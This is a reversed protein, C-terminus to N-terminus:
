PNNEPIEIMCEVAYHDSLKESHVRHGYSHLRDDHFIYDIRLLPFIGNYTSGFGNGSETFSDNLHSTVQRYFWSVPTDNFDGALIVPHPSSKVHEMLIHTQTVRREFAMRLKTIIQQEEKEPKQNPGLWKKVNVSDGLYEYDGRRFRISSLHANYIRLTNNKIKLDTFIANNNPDNPFRIEGANVIPFASFTAVGFSQGNRLQHTYGEFCNKARLFKQLTDRTEFFGKNSNYYFEQFCIVDADSNQLLEFIKDRNKGFNKYNYLDFLCVNYSVVKLKLSEAVLPGSWFTVQFFHRFHNFGILFCCLSLLLWKNRIVLWFLIFVFNSFLFVPYALGSLALLSSTAPSISTALYSFLLGGAALFNLVLVLWLYWKMKRPVFWKKFM